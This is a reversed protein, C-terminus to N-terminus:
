RPDDWRLEAFPHDIVYEALRGEVFSAGVVAVMLASTAFFGSMRSASAANMIPHEFAVNQRRTASPVTGGAIFIPPRDRQRSLSMSATIFLASDLLVGSAAYSFGGGAPVPLPPIEKDATIPVYRLHGRREILFPFRFIYLSM